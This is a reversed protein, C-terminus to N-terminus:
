GNRVGGIGRQAGGRRNTGRPGAPTRLAEGVSWGRALRGRVTARGLKFARCAAALGSYTVGSVRFKPVCSRNGSQEVLTAWRCNEPTYDGTGNKRDLSRGAPRPGMDALFAQFSGQWRTCVKIGAGGYIRYAANNPNGCRQRMAQWINYETTGAAGHKRSRKRLEATASCGCSVSLGKRLSYVDVARRTGCHCLCDVLTRGALRYPDGLTMWSGYTLDTLKRAPM